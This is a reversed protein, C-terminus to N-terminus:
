GKHDYSRDISRESLDIKWIPIGWVISPLSGVPFRLLFVNSGLRIGESQDRLAQSFGLTRSFLDPRSLDYYRELRIM